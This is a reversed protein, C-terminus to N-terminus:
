VSCHLVVLFSFFCFFVNLYCIQIEFLFPNLILHKLALICGYFRFFSRKRTQSSGKISEQNSNFKLSTRRHEYVVDLSFPLSMKFCINSVDNSASFRLFTIQFSRFLGVDSTFYLPRALLGPSIFFKWVLITIKRSRLNPWFPQILDPLTIFVLATM